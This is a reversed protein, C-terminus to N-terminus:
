ESVEAMETDEIVLDDLMEELTIQPISPDIEDTDVPIQKRSDRFININQRLEPDEELDDLFENYENNETSMSFIEDAIHKLKWVRARRRAAKDHGYIKKVLIIDPVADESLKDFNTDNINSNKLAYGLVSDGPKLVHGLHTRTHILNDNIGLESAKVLWADATVHKKSISGQGPFTKIDTHKIPEIDMVVFETLQKPNCISNFNCRWYVTASVEAIQGSSVDILHVSNTIKYVLCIPSIGGLQQTLKRPLCVISDKSIPVIEVSYTFKYNYVNSHCDYSILKKSHEYHCPIVTVLFDVMKRAMAENAYFFDLGEHIPKIGLAQEHAKHKLILQELYFFTKKNIAKQRVQVSARWYDKAETRHCDNCMQHNVMYEVVFVQQLVAGGLVEAHVTLKVKLRKSHPETWIFGADILKVRNLGKLKKLCLSLLERSELAAHIWETPPQLYRECSKCFQLTAQKPIGETIDIHNRLCVVCMNAPNPEIVTGCECCLIASKTQAADSVPIYEM